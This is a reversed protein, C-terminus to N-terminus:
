RGQVSSRMSRPRSTPRSGLKNLPPEPPAPNIKAVDSAGITGSTSSGQGTVTALATLEILESGANVAEVAYSGDSSNLTLNRFVEARGPVMQGNQEIFETVRLNFMSLPNATDYDLDIQLNNGWTGAGAASAMLVNATANRMSVSAPGAGTATRVVYADTGGNQFFHKVCYSLESDTLLGGFAREFDAFSFIHTAENVAGRATYGVFATTSTAVGTITHVGSPIEEIYVGPYTPAVPM